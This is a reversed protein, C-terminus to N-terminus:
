NRKINKTLMKFKEILDWMDKINIGSNKSTPWWSSPPKPQLASVNYFSLILLLILNISTPLIMGVLIGTAFIISSNIEM